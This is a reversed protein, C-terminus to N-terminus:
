AHAVATNGSTLRRDILRPPEAVDATLAADFNSVPSLNTMGPDATELPEELYTAM